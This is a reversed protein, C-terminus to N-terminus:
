DGGGQQGSGGLVDVDAVGVDDGEVLGELAAAWAVITVLAPFDHRGPAGM